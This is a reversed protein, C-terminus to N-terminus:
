EFPYCFCCSLFRLVWLGDADELCKERANTGGSEDMEGVSQPSHEQLTLRGLSAM